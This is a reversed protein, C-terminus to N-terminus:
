KILTNYNIFQIYEENFGEIATKVYIEDQTDKVYFVYQEPALARMTRGTIQSFYRLNNDLQVIIGVEINNLNVGEKLMKTTYLHNVNGENFALILAKIDSKHMKSHISAGNSLIESQAIDGTFCILRKNQFKTKILHKVYHTKTNALFKKRDNACKLWKNKDFTNHSNFFKLKFYEIRASIKNYFDLETCMVFKDATWHFKHIAKINDLELGIFYIKPEPLINNEIATSLSIKHINIHGLIYQFILKHPITLTASLGIFNKLKNDKIDQLYELRRDSKLNHVEDFIYNEENLHKKLSQYCLFTINPLLHQKNHKIFEDIWNQEHNSEAIVICWKSGLKEIIQIAVLSKGFGTCFEIITNENNNISKLVKAQEKDRTM